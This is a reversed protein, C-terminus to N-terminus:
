SADPRPPAPLHHRDPTTPVVARLQRFAQAREDCAPEERLSVLVAPGDDISPLNQVALLDDDQTGDAAPATPDGDKHHTM